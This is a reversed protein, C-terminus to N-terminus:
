RDIEALKAVLERRQMELDAQHLRSDGPLARDLETRLSVADHSTGLGADVLSTYRNLKETVPGVVREPADMLDILIREGTAGQAFPVDVVMIEGDGWVLKRVSKAEVSGIVQESHTTLIFQANPFADLLGRVVHAQWPPDLHLDIEDILIVAPSNTGRVPDNLDPSPNLQTMRRAIDVVLSFHTRYGDSLSAIDLPEVGGDDHVFDVLMRIPRTKVKPNRCHLGSREVAGRVWEFEPLRYDFDKRRIKERREEDEMVRFWEFVTKFRTTARLAGDFAGFREFDKQFDRERLPLEVVARETGYSAVLPLPSPLTEPAAELAEVILPDVAKYLRTPGIKSIRGKRLAASAWGTVGWEVENAAHLIVSACLKTIGSRERVDPRTKWPVRVDGLKAFGRGKAKTEGKTKPMRSAYVGLGVGIADIITTKGAANAGFLVTVKPGLDLEMHRIGRFDEIVVKKIPAIM